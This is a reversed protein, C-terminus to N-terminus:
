KYLFSLMTLSNPLYEFILMVNVLFNDDDVSVNQYSILTVEVHMQYLCVVFVNTFISTKNISAFWLDFIANKKKFTFLFM